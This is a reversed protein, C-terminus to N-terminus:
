GRTVPNKQSIQATAPSALLLLAIAAASLLRV